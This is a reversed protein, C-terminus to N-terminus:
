WYKTGLPVKLGQNANNISFVKHFLKQTCYNVCPTFSKKAILPFGDVRNPSLARIPNRNTIPLSDM